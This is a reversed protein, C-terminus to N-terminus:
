ADRLAATGTGAALLLLLLSPLVMWAVESTGCPRYLADSQCLVLPHVEHLAWALGSGALFAAATLIPWRRAILAAAALGAVLIVLRGAEPPLFVFGPLLSEVLWFGAWVFAGGAVAAALDQTVTKM